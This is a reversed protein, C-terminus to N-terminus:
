SSEILRKVDIHRGLLWDELSAVLSDIIGDRWLFVNVPGVEVILHEGEVPANIDHNVSADIIGLIAWVGLQRPDLVQLCKLAISVLEPTLCPLDIVNLIADSIVCDTAVIPCVRSEGEEVDESSAM